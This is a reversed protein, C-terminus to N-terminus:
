RTRTRYEHEKRQQEIFDPANGSMASGITQRIGVATTSLVRAAEMMATVGVNGVAHVTSELVNGVASVLGTAFEGGRDAIAGPNRSSASPGADRSGPTTDRGTTADKTDAM